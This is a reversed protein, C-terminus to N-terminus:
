NLGPTVRERKWSAQFCQAQGPRWTKKVVPFAATAALELWDKDKKNSYCGSDRGKLEKANEPIELIMLSHMEWAETLSLVGRHCNHRGQRHLLLEGQMCLAKNVRKIADKTSSFTHHM